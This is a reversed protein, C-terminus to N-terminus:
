KKEELLSNITKQLDSIHSQKFGVHSHVISGSRDIIYVVPIGEVKYAAAVDQPTTLFGSDPNLIPDSLQPYTVKVKELFPLIADKGRRDLAIGLFEIAGEFRESRISSLQRYLRDLHPMAVRCPVCWTAWFDLLLAKPHVRSVSGGSHGEERLVTLKGDDMTVTIVAGDAARLIFPSFRDGPKLIAWLNLNLIMISMIGIHKIFIKRM